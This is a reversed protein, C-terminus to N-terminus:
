NEKGLAKNLCIEAKKVFYENAEIPISLGDFARRLMEVDGYKEGTEAEILIGLGDVFKVALELGDKEYLEDSESIEMAKKYGLAEFLLAADKENEVDCNYSKQSLITGDNAIDKVKYTIRKEIKEGREISRILVADRLIERVNKSKDFGKPLMYIDDMTFTGTKQFGHSLLLNRLEEAPCLVRVTIENNDKMKNKEVNTYFM